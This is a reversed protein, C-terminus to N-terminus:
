RQRSLKERVKDFHFAKTKLLFNECRQKIKLSKNRLYNHPHSIMFVSWKMFENYTWVLQKFLLSVEERGKMKFHGSLIQLPGATPYQNKRPQWWYKEEHYLVIKQPDALSSKFTAIIKNECSYFDMIKHKLTWWTWWTTSLLVDFFNLRSALSNWMAYIKKMRNIGLLISLLLILIKKCFVYALFFFSCVSDQYLNGSSWHFRRTDSNLCGFSLHSYM